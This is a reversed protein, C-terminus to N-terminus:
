EQMRIVQMGPADKSLVKVQYLMVAVDRRTLSEEGPLAIGNEALCALAIEQPQATEGESNLTAWASVKLDLVNQVMLAAEYGTIEGAFYGSPSFDVGDLLGSRLAAAVYPRLWSPASRVAELEQTDEEMPLELMKVVMALFEGRTFSKDPQFCSAGNVTEGTFLGTNKLWEAEFRCNEGVTDSYAKASPKMLQITVTAEKSVNGASDTATFVFSDTGVKNKNPTYLFTGDTRIIVEGRKPQRIVTFTLDGGEPDSAKLKGEKPLNKYTEFSQDQVVPAKDEKGRISITMTTKPAVRNEYIPLYEVVAQTDEQTRLPHFTMQAVQDAALIDGPRLVRTGLLITGTDSDPLGTICIGTLVAEEQAFDEAAFCYVQDCDVEAASAPVAFATLCLLALVISFFRKKQM